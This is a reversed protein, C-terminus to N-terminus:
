NQEAYERLLRDKFALCEARRAELYAEGVAESVHPKGIEELACFLAWAGAFFAKHMEDYQTKSPKKKRFLMAALGQWEEEISKLKSM